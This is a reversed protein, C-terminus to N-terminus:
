VDGQGVRRGAAEHDRGPAGQHQNAIAQYGDFGAALIEKREMPMASATIAIVPISATTESKRLEGLASIGDMGPLQIDMLILAPSSSEALVLGEEATGTELVELDNPIMFTFTSGAGLESAVRIEGGHAEVLTKCLSLGLGTGEQTTAIEDRAQGYDEFIRALDDQAIGVGTDRVSIELGREDQNVSLTVCGGAQTFKVANTLLNILVQKLKREDANFVGVGPDIETEISVGSL